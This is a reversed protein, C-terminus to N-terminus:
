IVVEAVFLDGNIQINLKGGMLECLSEAISLGLGSGETTRSEDGRVFREKLQEATINLPSGSINKVSIIGKGGRKEVNLYVRTNEMAYKSVNGMLNELVRYLMKSDAQVVINEEPFSTILSLNHKDFEDSYEGIIQSTIENLSVQMFEVKLNGTSAKSAEVLDEILKKLRDSKEGLIDLYEKADEDSIDCKKLLEVYNIISTLPTKLDHSVNTILETKTQEQKVAEDVAIKLGDRLSMLKNAPERLASPIAFLNIQVDYNGEKLENVASFIKKVGAIFRVLQICVFVDFAILLFTYFLTESNVIEITACLGLIINVGLVIAGKIVTEKEFGRVYQLKEKVPQLWNKEKIHQLWKKEKFLIIATIIDYTALVTMCLLLEYENDCFGSIFFGIFVNVPVFFVLLLVLLKNNTKIVKGSKEAFKRILWVLFINKFLTKNKIHRSIFLVLDLVVAGLAGCVAGLALIVIENVNGNGFFEDLIWIILMFTLFGVGCDLLIRFDTFMKDLRFMYVNESDGFRRGSMLVLFIFLCLFLLMFGGCFMVADKAIDRALIIKNNVKAFNCEGKIFSSSEFDVGVYIQMDSASETLVVFPSKGNYNNQTTEKTPLAVSVSTVEQTVDVRTTEPVTTAQPVATTDPMATTPMMTTHIVIQTRDYYEVHGEDFIENELYSLLSYDTYHRGDPLYMTNSYNQVAYFGLKEFAAVIDDQTSKKGLTKINTFTNGLVDRVFYRGSPYIENLYQLESEYDKRFEEYTPYAFDVIGYKILHTRLVDENIKFLYYGAPYDDFISDELEDYDDSYIGASSGLFVVGDAKTKEKLKLVEQTLPIDNKRINFSESKLWGYDMDAEELDYESFYNDMNLNDEAKVYGCDVIDGSRLAVLFNFFGEEQTVDTVLNEKVRNFTESDKASLNNIKTEYAKKDGEGFTSIIYAVRSMYRSYERKFTETKWVEGNTHSSYLADVFNAGELNRKDCLVLSSVAQSAAGWICVICLVVAIFKFLASLNFKKLKTDM